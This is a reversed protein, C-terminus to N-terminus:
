AGRDVLNELCSYQLPNGNGVGVYFLITLFNAGPLIVVIKSCYLLLAFIFINESLTSYLALMYIGATILM